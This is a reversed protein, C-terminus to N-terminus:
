NWVWRFLQIVFTTIFTPLLNVYGFIEAWFKTFTEHLRQAIIDSTLHPPSKIIQYCTPDGHNFFYFDETPSQIKGQHNEGREVDIEEENDNDSRRFRALIARVKSVLSRSRSIHDPTEYNEAAKTEPTQITLLNDSV